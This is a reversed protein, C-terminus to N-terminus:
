AGVEDPDLSGMVITWRRTVQKMKWAGFLTDVNEDAVLKMRYIKNRDTRTVAVFYIEAAAKWDVVPPKANLPNIEPEDPPIM